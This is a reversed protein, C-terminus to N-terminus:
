NDLNCEHVNDETNDNVREGLQSFSTLLYNIIFCSHAKDTANILKFDLSIRLLSKSTMILSIM